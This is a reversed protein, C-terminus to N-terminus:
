PWRKDAQSPLRNEFAQLEAVSELGAKLSEVALAAVDVVAHWAPDSLIDEHDYHDSPGEYCKLAMHVKWVEDREVPSLIGERVRRSFPADPANKDNSDYSGGNVGYFTEFFEIFSYHPNQMEPDLWTARQFALDSLESVCGFITARCSQRDSPSPTGEGM